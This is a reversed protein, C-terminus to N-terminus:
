LDYYPIKNIKQLALSSLLKTFQNQSSSLGTSLITVNFKLKELAPLAQVITCCTRELLTQVHTIPEFAEATGLLSQPVESGDLNLGNTPQIHFSNENTSANNLQHLQKLYNNINLAAEFSSSQVSKLVELYSKLFSQAIDFTTEFRTSFEQKLASGSPHSANISSSKFLMIGKKVTELSQHICSGVIASSHMVHKMATSLQHSICGALCDTFSVQNPSVSAGCVRSMIAVCDTVFSFNEFFFFISEMVNQSNQM